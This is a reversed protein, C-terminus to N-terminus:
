DEIHIAEVPCSEAAERCSAQVEAPVQDVKVKAVEADDPLEFVEPCIDPCLGCAICTDDISAKVKRKGEKPDQDDFRAASM